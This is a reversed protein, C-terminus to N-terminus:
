YLARRWLCVQIFIHRPSYQEVKKTETLIQQESRFRSVLYFPDLTGNGSERVMVFGSAKHLHTQMNQTHLKDSTTQDEAGVMM